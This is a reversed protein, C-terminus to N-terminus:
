GCRTPASPPTSARPRIRRSCTPSPRSRPGRSATPGCGGASASRSPRRPSPRSPPWPGSSGTPTRLDDHATWTFLEGRAAEAVANYNAAAGINAGQRLYRIRPDRAAFERCIDATGDTSANDSVVIEFDTFTQGLFCRLTEALFNEGNRVPLGVTVRPVPRLGLDAVEVDRDGTPDCDGTLDRDRARGACRACAWRAPSPM